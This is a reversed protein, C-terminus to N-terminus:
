ARQCRLLLQLDWPNANIGGTRRGSAARQDFNALCFHVFHRRQGREARETEPDWGTRQLPGLLSARGQASSGRAALAPARPLLARLSGPQLPPSIKSVGAGYWPTPLLGANTLSGTRKTWHSAQWHAAGTCLAEGVDEGAAAAGWTQGNEMAFGTRGGRVGVWGDWCGLLSCFGLALARTRWGDLAGPAAKRLLLLLLATHAELMM